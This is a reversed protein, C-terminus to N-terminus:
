MHTMLDGSHGGPSTSSWNSTGSNATPAFRSALNSLNPNSQIPVPVPVPVPISHSTSSMPNFVTPITQQFYPHRQQQQLQELQLQFSYHQQQQQSTIPVLPNILNRNASNLSIHSCSISKVHTRQHHSQPQVNGASASATSTARTPERAQVDGPGTGGHRLHSPRHPQQSLHELLFVSLYILPLPCLPAALRLQSPKQGNNDAWSTLSERVIIAIYFSHECM